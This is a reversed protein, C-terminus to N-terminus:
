QKNISQEIVDVIDAVGIIFVGAEGKDVARKWIEYGERYEPNVASKGTLKILSQKLTAGSVPFHPLETSFGGAIVPNKVKVASVSIHFVKGLKPVSEIKNILVRSGEEGSRTKYSWVQGEAFEQAAAIRFSSLLSM